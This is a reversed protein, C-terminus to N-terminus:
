PRKAPADGAVAAHPAMKAQSRGAWDRGRVDFV